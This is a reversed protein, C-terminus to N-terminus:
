VEEYMETAHPLLWAAPRQLRCGGNYLTICMPCSVEVRTGDKQRRNVSTSESPSALTSVVNVVKNDKWATAVTNGSQRFVSEGRQLKKAEDCIESPFGKCNTRITVCAYTKQSLLKTLLSISSFYNDFFVQHNRGQISDTLTLVVKEGLATERDGMLGTYVNLDCLYGNLPDAMAWVKFGRKVLKTALITEHDVARQLTDNSQRREASLPPLLRVQVQGEPCVGGTGSEPTM